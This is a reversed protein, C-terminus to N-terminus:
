SDGDGGFALLARHRARDIGVALRPQDVDLTDPDVSFEALRHDVHGVFVLRAEDALERAHEAVGLEIDRGEMEAPDLLAAVGDGQDLDVAGHRGIYEGLHLRQRLDLLGLGQYESGSINWIVPSRTTKGLPLRGTNTGGPRFTRM